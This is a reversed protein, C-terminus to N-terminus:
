PTTNLNLGGWIFINRNYFDLYIGLVLPFGRFDLVGLDKRAVYTGATFGESM